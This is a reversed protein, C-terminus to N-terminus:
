VIEKVEIRQMFEVGVAFQQISEACHRVVSKATLHLRPIGTTVITGPPIPFALELRAGSVSIDVCRGMLHRHSGDKEQWAVWAAVNGSYRPHARRKESGM